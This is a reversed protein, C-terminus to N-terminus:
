TQGVVAIILDMVGAYGRLIFELQTTDLPKGAQIASLQGLAQEKSRRVASLPTNTGLVPPDAPLAEGACQCTVCRCAPCTACDCVALGCNTCALAECNPCLPTFSWRAGCNSCRESM